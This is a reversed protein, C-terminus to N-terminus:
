PLSIVSVNTFSIPQNSVDFAIAGQTYSSDTATIQLVNDYYVQITSGQFCLRLHHFNVADMALQGSQGLVSLDADINWQGIRFLKLVGQAPYIWVGYSAGTTTNLRGRLGGPYDNPSSLKFDASVTYDTWTNSGAYSETEGGTGNFTYVGNAVSWASANGLPGITWNGAGTSFNDSFLLNGVQMSVAVQQPSNTVDPSSITVTDTYSGASLITSNPSVTITSPASGTTPSLGLWSTTDTATWSLTGSGGNTVQISQATPSASTAGFFVLSSPTVSMVATKVGLTVPITIPSGSAGPASVTLVGSYTGEGFGSSNVSVTITGPTLTSSPTATLWTQNSSVAWATSAGGGSINVTQSPPTSGPLASFVLTSPSASLMAQSQVASVRINSYSIPQNDADLCVFGSAYSSDTASIKANGDWLVSIQNGHFDVALDHTNTDFTMAAQGVLTLSSDNINWVAVKYLIMLNSGPYLWIVYGAGTSPNVRARVGGPWNATSSLKINTDFTYDTWASNGSCSQSLGIGSYSYVGNSVSWGSANGMPSIIWGQAVDTFTEVMDQSLVEVNVPISVPSNSIGSATITIHGTYSGTALGNTVVSVSASGPTSGSTPSASLWSSDSSVSYSFSGLGGNSVTIAQAPPAPQGQNAIFSLSGPSALISPPPVNVTLTVNIVQTLNASGYSLVTIAGNYTGGSLTSSNASIQLTAPSTGGTPSVSLWSANSVATWALTGSGGATLSVNQAAPSPGQYNASFSLSNSGVSLSGSNTTDSSTVLVNGFNIVQNLGELAVAGSPYTSDTATIITNGDYKVTIQSGILSVSLTHFNTADFGASGTALQTLGSYINWQTAKYLIVEGLAPYVWVMYGAGTSPNVRARIGGPYDLLNNLKFPVYLTYDTWASNGAYIQTSGAGSFQAAGNVISWASGLGLSSTVWGQLGATAFNASMLLNTVQMSVSVTQPSNAAGPATVTITGTYTGGTLGSPNVSVSISQPLTGSSPNLTIWPSSTTATWNLAATGQNYVTITQSPPSNQGAFATFSLAAPTAILASPAGPMSGAPIYVVDVWYNTANFASTPFISHTSYSFVGDPGAGNADTALLHVPPNDLGATAFFEATASYHGSPAFYSAVYVTNATIAVPNSFTVQQWGSNTENSFTASALLAGSLTWLNGIHTGTNTSAKYFRIGTIYGNYDARFKVGLEVSNSDGSDAQSPAASSSWVDCPCDHEAVTVAVGASPTELNGSDDVARSRITVNGVVVPTGTYTWSGRGTAPHWTNGGDLSVEVGAVVGGGSDSATGTVTVPSGVQLTAGSTPSSIISIPPATDTSASAAILGSQLSAPQVGMDAFLNVVAQQVNPDPSQPSGFADDHNSNLAWAFDVSGAGFVLAGSPARYMMMHHTASGAGYTAGFDLLLDSTLTEPTTSLQFAGAPRFGNDMDEDSEYGLTQAPLTYTQGGGQTAVATNRWFRMKGDAAPVQIALTGDNDSGTGNVMFLTGTVNNEPLGGDAPPSFSPDRWTGTWTPPDDPDTQAFALTEKYCVMTRYPTNTGDISNEWRVKWFMENGSFFALNVGADRAAKVNTRQPGSWYEDHGATVYIKHNKILSGSRASDLGTTYTIDYGNQEMWQILAFEAGFLWTASEFEFGRTIFPRNYSVKFARGPLNFANQNGYLSFGGPGSSNYAQWSEDSTQYVVASHSSDNRVVFVIHSDGGTDTRVLHAVYVGSTANSPVAWSASVAWNGCDVLNTSGDTICAPQSQPLTASPTVSAIFRAGNGGYYGIRYISITYAKAPTSIKFNVTGGQPVSIDTAFGQITPDGGDGTKVDWQNDPSGPKSNECVIDNAMPPNCGFTQAQASPAYLASVGLALLCFIATFAAFRKQGTQQHNPRSQPVRSGHPISQVAHLISM